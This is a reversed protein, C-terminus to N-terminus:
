ANSTGKKHLGYAVSYFVISVLLLIAAMICAGTSDGSELLAVLQTPVTNGKLFAPTGFEGFSLFAVIFFSEFFSPRLLISDISRFSYRASLGLTRSVNSFNEPIGLIASLLVLVSVPIFRAVTALIALILPNVFPLLKGILSFGMGLVAAGFTLPLFALTTPFGNRAIAFSLRKSLLTCILAASVSIIASYLLGRTGDAKMSGFLNSISSMTSGSLINIAFIVFPSLFIALAILLYIATFLKSMFSKAVVARKERSIDKWSDLFMVMLAIYTIVFPALSLAQAANHNGSQWLNYIFTCTNVIESGNGLIKFSAIDSFCRIFALSASFAIESRMRPTTISFFVKASKTGLSRACSECNDDLFIWRSGVFYIVLPTNSMVLVIGIPILPNISDLGTKQLLFRTSLALVSVPILMLFTLVWRFFGKLPFRYKAMIYAGPLGLIVSALVCILAFAVSNVLNILTPIDSFVSLVSDAGSIWEMIAPALCLIFLLVIAIAPYTRRFNDKTSM